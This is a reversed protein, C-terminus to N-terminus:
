AAPTNASVAVSLSDAEANLKDALAQVAAPDTKAAALEAAIGQILAIASEEVTVAREVAATLATLDAMIDTEKRLINRLLSLVEGLQERDFRHVVHIEIREM